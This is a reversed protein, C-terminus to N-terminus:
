RMLVMKQTLRLGAADLVYFYVGSAADVGRDDTGNWLVKHAGADRPKDVLTAVERGDVGYVRLTVRSRDPLDFAITTRPNFPNPVNQGLRLQLPVEESGGLQLGSTMCTVGSNWLDRLVVDDIDVSSSEGSSVRFRLRAVVCSGPM